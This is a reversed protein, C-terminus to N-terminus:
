DVGSQVLLYVLTGLECFDILKALTPAGSGTEVLVAEEDSIVPIVRDSRRKEEESM